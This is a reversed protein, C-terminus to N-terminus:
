ADTMVLVSPQDILIEMTWHDTSFDRIKLEFKASKGEPQPLPESELLVAARPDFKPNAMEAFMAERNPEVKYKSVVFFRPFANADEPMIAIDGDAAPLMATRCRLLSLIPHSQNFSVNQGATKPDQGQSLAVIEAYRRLVSPEYGWIGASQLYMSADPNFLNLARYEGPHEELYKAVKPYALDDSSFSAVSGKAFLFVEAMAAIMLLWSASRWHRVCFLLVAFLVLLGGAWLLSNGSLNKAASVFAEDSLAGPRLYSEPSGGLGRFAAGWWGDLTGGSLALGLALLLGGALAVALMFIWRPGQRRLLLEFGHGALLSLVLAAFFFFKSTGRFSSFGPLAHYLLWYLPTHAGLGLLAIIGLLILLRTRRGRDQWAIAGWVALLLMGIGLYLNAEWIYIRGWYTTKNVMGFFDPALLTLINEPPLSFMSAFEFPTGGGRASEAAAALGPLLQVASFLAALPYIALLGLAASLPRTAKILFLLSYVGAALATYYTYQPHGAFVQLAAAGASLLLFGAHRRALWGDIGLFVLPAWAMSCVNSLHGAYIHLFFTGGLMAAAASVFAAAPRLGSCFAWAYMTAGLIFVHLVFSVNIATELPLVFFILNLPYLLASQFDGLFPVGGYCYPNWLPLNGMSWEWSGFARSFLFQSAVDHGPASLVQRDAYLERTFPVFALVALLLLWLGHRFLFDLTKAALRSPMMPGETLAILANPNM